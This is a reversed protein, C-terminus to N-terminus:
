FKASPDFILIVGAARVSSCAVHEAAMALAGLVILEFCAGIPKSRPVMSNGRGKPQLFLAWRRDDFPPVPLLAM